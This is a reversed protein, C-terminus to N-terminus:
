FLTCSNFQMHAKSQQMGNKTLMNYQAGPLPSHRLACQVSSLDTGKEKLVGAANEGQRQEKLINTTFFFSLIFINAKSM